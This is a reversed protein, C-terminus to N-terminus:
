DSEDNKMREGLLYKSNLTEIIDGEELDTYRMNPVHSTHIYTGDVWREYVDDYIDGWICGFVPDAKWNELRGTLKFEM